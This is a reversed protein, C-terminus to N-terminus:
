WDFFYQGSGKEGALAIRSDYPDIYLFDTGEVINTSSMIRNLIIDM